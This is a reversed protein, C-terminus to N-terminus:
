GALSLYNSQIGGGAQAQFCIQFGQVFSSADAGVRRRNFIQFLVDDEVAVNMNRHQCHVGFAISEDGIFVLVGISVGDVLGAVASQQTLSEDMTCAM